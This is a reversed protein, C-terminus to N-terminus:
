PKTARKKQKLIITNVILSINNLPQRWQHAIMNLMMGMEALKSQQFM